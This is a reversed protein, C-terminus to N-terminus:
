SRIREIFRTTASIVAAPRDRHPSHGCDGLRLVETGPVLRELRDVQEMTAYEDGHGQVALLPCRINRLEKEISWQLFRPDLWIDCWGRFAGDPDAHYRALRERWDTHEYARKAAAIARVCVEEVMVHPALVVAGRLPREAGAAHILAISAGDSHGFLVPERVDLRDLVAPLVVLAEDHLFEPRRPGRLPASNGYGHRSYVLANCGAALALRRPFDKWMAICGLGEHLFVITPAAAGAAQIIEYELARGCVDIKPM